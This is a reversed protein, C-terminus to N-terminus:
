FCYLILTPVRIFRNRIFITINNIHSLCKEHEVPFKVDAILGVLLFIYTSSICCRKHRKIAIKTIKKFFTKLKNQSYWIPVHVIGCYFTCVIWLHLDSCPYWSSPKTQTRKLCFIINWTENRLYKYLVYVFIKAWNFRDCLIVLWLM